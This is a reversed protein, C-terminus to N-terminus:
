WRKRSTGFKETAGRQATNRAVPELGSLCSKDSLIPDTEWRASKLAFDLIKGDSGAGTASITVAISLAGVIEGLLQGHLFDSNNMSLDEGVHQKIHQEVVGDSVVFIFVEVVNAAKRV